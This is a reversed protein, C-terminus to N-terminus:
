GFIDYTVESGVTRARLGAVLAKDARVKDKALGKKKKADLFATKKAAYWGWEEPHSVAFNGFRGTHLPDRLEQFESRSAKLVQRRSYLSFFGRARTVRLGEGDRVTKPFTFIQALSRVRSERVYRDVWRWNPINIILFINKSGYIMLTKIVDKVARDIADRSFMAEGGEDLIAVSRDPLSMMKSSLNRELFFIHSLAPSWDFALGQQSLFWAQNLGFSSKGGREMGSNIHLWDWNETLVMRSVDRLNSELVADM